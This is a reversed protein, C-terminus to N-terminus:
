KDLQVPMQLVCNDILISTVNNGERTFIRFELLDKSFIKFYDASMKLDFGFKLKTDSEAMIPYSITKLTDQKGIKTKQTISLGSGQIDFVCTSGGKSKFEEIMSKFSSKAIDVLVSDGKPLVAKYDPFKIPGDIRFMMVIYDMAIFSHGEYKAISFQTKCNIAFKCQDPNLMIGSYETEAENWYIMNGTTAVIDDSAYIFQLNYRADDKSVFNTAHSIKHIDNDNVLEFHEPISTIKPFEEFLVKDNDVDFNFSDGKITVVNNEISFDVEDAGKPIAQLAAISVLIDLDIEDFAIIVTKDLDTFTATGEKTFKVFELISLSKDGIGVAGKVTLIIEDIINKSLRM